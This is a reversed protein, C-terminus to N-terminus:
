GCKRANTKKPDKFSLCFSHKPNVFSKKSPIFYGLQNLQLPSWLHLLLLSIRSAVSYPYPMFFIFLPTTKLIQLICLGLWRRM